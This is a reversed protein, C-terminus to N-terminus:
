MELSVYFAKGFINDWSLVSAFTKANEKCREYFEDDKLLKVIADVLEKKDYNIAIGMPKEQIEKAIWPVRTIIVPLGCALYEKPKTPDAFYTISNPDDLYTALAVGRTPLYKMLKDHDMLGLFKISKDLNATKVLEKLKGEHPGIGIIELKADPVKKIVDEMAEIILEAGKSKTLHSVFVLVDTDTKVKPVYEIKELEIGVPVVLNKGSEVGQKERIEAIRESVNWIYDTYKACLRDLFHYCFNAVSNNFRRPTYDIVYFIVKDVIGLKRLIIGCFANLNDIGICLDYREKSKLMFYFTFFVHQFYSFLESMKFSRRYILRKCEGEFFARYESSPVASYPLPHLISVFKGTKKKSYNVLAQVPGYVETVHGIILIRKSWIKSSYM